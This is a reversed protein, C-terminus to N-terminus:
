FFVNFGEWLEKDVDPYDIYKFLEEICLWIVSGLQESRKICLNSSSKKGEIIVFIANRCMLGRSDQDAM